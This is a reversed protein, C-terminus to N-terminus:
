RNREERSAQNTLHHLVIHEVETVASGLSDNMVVRDFAKREEMEMPVRELRIRLAEDDETRRRSLREKLEEVSPPMIFILLASPYQKKISVAGKVDVDFLLHDGRRLANEVEAKLTGYKNGFLEEWEVFIGDSVGQSFQEYTMFYYDHGEVEGTRRARTTASVSFRLSSIRKLIERAISTKGAGSPASIVVLKGAGM